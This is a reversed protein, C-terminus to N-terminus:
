AENTENESSIENISCFLMLDDNKTGMKNKASQRTGIISLIKLALQM